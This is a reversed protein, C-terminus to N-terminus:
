RSGRPCENLKSMQMVSTKTKNAMERLLPIMNEETPRTYLRMAESNQVWYGLVGCVYENGLDCALAATAGGIRLSHTAYKSKDLGIAETCAKVLAYLDSTTTTKGDRRVFLPTSKEEGIACRCDRRMEELYEEMAKAPCIDSSDVRVYPKAKFEENVGTKTRKIRLAHGYSTWKVDSVTCDETDDFSSQDAPLVDRGRNAGFFMTSLLAKIQKAGLKTMMRRLAEYKSSKYLQGAEMADITSWMKRLHQQVLPLRTRKTQGYHDKLRATLRRLRSWDRGYRLDLGSETNIQTMANTKYSSASSVKVGREEVCYMLFGMFLDEAERCKTTEDHMAPDWSLSGFDLGELMMYEKFAKMATNYQQKTRKRLSSTLFRKASTRYSSSHEEEDEMEDEGESCSGEEDSSYEGDETSTEEEEEDSTEVRKVEIIQGINMSKRGHHTLSIRGDGKRKYHLGEVVLPGRAQSAESSDYSGEDESESNYAAESESSSDSRTSNFRWSSIPKDDEDQEIEDGKVLLSRTTNYNYSEDKYKMGDWKVSYSMKGGVKSVTSIHGYAYDNCQCKRKCECRKCKVRKGIWHHEQDEEPKKKSESEYRQAPVPPPTCTSPTQKKLQDKKKKREQYSVQVSRPPRASVSTQEHCNGGRETGTESGTDMDEEESDTTPLYDKPIQRSKRPQRPPVTQSM